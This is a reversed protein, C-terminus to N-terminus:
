FKSNADFLTQDIKNIECSDLCRINERKREKGVVLKKKKKKQNHEVGRM